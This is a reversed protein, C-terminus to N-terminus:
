SFASLCSLVKESLSFDTWDNGSDSGVFCISAKQDELRLGDGVNRKKEFMKRLVSFPTLNRCGIFNVIITNRNLNFVYFM